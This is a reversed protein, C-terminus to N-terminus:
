ACNAKARKLAATIGKLSFQYSVKTGRSSVAKVTMTAGARMKGVLARESSGSEIFAENASAYMTYKASGIRAEPARTNKLSYGALFSPQEKAAGSRWNSVLFYVDGHNVSRPSKTEPEALAYCIKSQGQGRSYVKWDTYIGELKPQANAVPTLALPALATLAAIIYRFRIM